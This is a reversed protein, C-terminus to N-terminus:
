MASSFTALVLLGFALFTVSTSAAGSSSECPAYRIYTAPYSSGSDSQKTCDTTSFSETANITGSCKGQNYNMLTTKGGSCSIKGSTTGLEVCYGLPQFGSQQAPPLFSTTPKTCQADSFQQYSVMPTTPKFTGPLCKRFAFFPAFSVCAMYQQFTTNSPTTSCTTGSYSMKVADGNAACALRYSNSSEVTCVSTFSDVNAFLLPTQASCAAQTEYTGLFLYDASVISACAAM